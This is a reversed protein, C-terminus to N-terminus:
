SSTLRHVTLHHNAALVTQILDCNDFVIKQDLVINRATSLLCRDAIDIHPANLINQGRHFSGENIDALPAISDKIGAFHIPIRNSKFSLRAADFRGQFGTVRDQDLDCLIRDAVLARAQGTLNSQSSAVKDQDGTAGHHANRSLKRLTLADTQLLDELLNDGIRGAYNHTGCSFPCRFLLNAVINATQTLLPVINFGLKRRRLVRRNQQAALRFKRNANDAVDEIFVKCLEDNFTILGIFRDLGVDVLKRGLKRVAHGLPNSCFISEM